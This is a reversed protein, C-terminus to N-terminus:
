ARVASCGGRVPSTPIARLVSSRMFRDDQASRLLTSLDVTTTSKKVSIRRSRSRRREPHCIFNLSCCPVVIGSRTWGSVPAPQLPALYGQRRLVDSPQCDPERVAPGVQAKRQALVRLSVLLRRGGQPYRSCLLGPLLFGGRTPRPVLIDQECVRIQFVIHYRSASFMVSVCFSFNKFASLRRNKSGYVSNSPKDARGQIPFLRLSNDSIAFDATSHSSVHRLSRVPANVNVSVIKFKVATVDIM